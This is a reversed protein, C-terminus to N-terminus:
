CSQARATSCSSASMGETLSAVHFGAQRCSPMVHVHVPPCFLQETIVIHISICMITGTRLETILKVVLGTAYCQESCWARDHRSGQLM